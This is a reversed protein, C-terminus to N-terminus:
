TPDFGNPGFDPIFRTTLAQRVGSYDASLGELLVYILEGDSVQEGMNQLAAALQMIRANYVDFEEGSKMKTKHLM